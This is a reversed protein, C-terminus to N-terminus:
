ACIMGNFMIEDGDNEEGHQGKVTSLNEITINETANKNENECIGSISDPGGAAHYAAPLANYDWGGIISCSGTEGDGVTSYYRHKVLGVPNYKALNVFMNIQKTKAREEQIYGLLMQINDELYVDVGAKEIKDLLNSYKVYKARLKSLNLDDVDAKSEFYVISKALVDCLVDM